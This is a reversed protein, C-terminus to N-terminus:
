REKPITITFATGKGPQSQVKISGNLERAKNYVLNLGTDNSGDAEDSSFGRTFMTQVLIDKNQSAEEKILRLNLAKKRIREFDIGKGDDALKIHIDHDDQTIHLTITGQESKGAAKRESPSELGHQVANRILQVLMQKLQRRSIYQLAASDIEVPLFRAKKNFDTAEYNCTRTLFQIFIHERHDMGGALHRSSIAGADKILKDKIKLAHEIEIALALLSDFSIETETRTQNIVDEVDYLSEAMDQLGLSVADMKITHIIPAIVDIVKESPVNKDKLTSMVRDLYYQASEIFDSIASQELRLVEFFSRMNEQRRREEMKLKKKLVIEATIDEITGLIFVEGNERNVPAFECSLTKKVPREVSKYRVEKLINMSDIQEQDISGSLINDFYRELSEMERENLSDGMLETFKRGQLETAALVDELTRSYNDQIVYEKDMLFVGAKLNDKMAAIEDREIQLAALSQQLMEVEVYRHCNEPRNLGNIIAVAMQECSKYGCAGCNLFQKRETKHMKVFTDRLMEKTPSVITSKFIKSRDTYRRTYLGEEWYNALVSELREADLAGDKEYQKRAAAGRKEILFEMEDLYKESNRTAPGGNCGMECSLCDIFFPTVGKEFSGPLHAMYKYVSEGEIRRSKDIIDAKYRRIIQRFGGPLPFLVAREAPPNVYDAEAYEKINIAHNRIYDMMSIFTVNYDGIGVSDFERRYSYCPSIAAFKCDAYQPYYKKIMKMTHITPSDVPALHPILEPRYMEIYSVITPCCQSIISAPNTKKIYDMYSKVALEAGFSADFVAAAGLSKLFGNVRLYNAGFSSVIAPSMIAVIRETKIDEIFANFDDVGVRAGHTCAKICRGCSICLDSQHMIVEGSGDNCM